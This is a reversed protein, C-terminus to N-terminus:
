GLLVQSGNGALYANVEQLSYTKGMFMVSGHMEIVKKNQQVHAGIQSKTAEDLAQFSDYQILM